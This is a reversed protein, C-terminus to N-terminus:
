YSGFSCYNVLCWRTHQTTNWSIYNIQRFEHLLSSSTHYYPINILDLYFLDSYKSSFFATYEAIVNYFKLMVDMEFIESIFYPMANKSIISVRRFWPLLDMFFFELLMVQEWEACISIRRTTARPFIMKKKHNSCPIYTDQQSCQERQHRIYGGM